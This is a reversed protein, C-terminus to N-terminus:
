YQICFSLMPSHDYYYFLEIEFEFNEVKLRYKYAPGHEIKEIFSVKFGFLTNFENNIWDPISEVKKYMWSFSANFVKKMSKSPFMIQQKDFLSKIIPQANEWQCMLDLDIYPTANANMVDGYAFIINSPYNHKCQEEYTSLEKEFSFIIADKALVKEQLTKIYAQHSPGALILAQKFGRGYNRSLQDQVYKKKVSNDYTKTPENYGKVKKIIKNEQVKPQVPVGKVRELQRLKNRRRDTEKRGRGFDSMFKKLDTSNILLLRDEEITWECGNRPQLTDVLEQHKDRISPLTRELMMAIASESYGERKYKLLKEEDEATWSKVKKPNFNGSKKKFNNRWASVQTATMGLQLAAEMPTLSLNKLINLQEPTQKKM